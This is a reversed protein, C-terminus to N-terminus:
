GRNKIDETRVACIRDANRIIKETLHNFPKHINEFSSPNRELEAGLRALDHADNKIENRIENLRALIKDM